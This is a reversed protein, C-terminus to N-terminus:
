LALRPSGRPPPHSILVRGDPTAIELTADALLKSSWGPLHVLHHHRSCGLWLNSLDTRGVQDPDDLFRRCLEVLADARRLAPTREPEGERDPSAAQRLALDIVVTAEHDFDGKLNARGDM